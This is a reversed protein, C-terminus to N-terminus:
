GERPTGTGPLVHEQPAVARGRRHQDRGVGVAVAAQADVALVGEAAAVPEEEFAALPQQRHEEM